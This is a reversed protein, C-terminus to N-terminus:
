SGSSAFGSARAWIWGSTFAVIKTPKAVYALTTRLMQEDRGKPVPDKPDSDKVENLYRLTAVKNADGYWNEIRANGNQDTAATVPRSAGSTTVVCNRAPAGDVDVVHIFISSNSRLKFEIADMTDLEEKRLQITFENRLDDMFPLKVDRGLSGTWSSICVSGKVPGAVGIFGDQDPVAFEFEGHQNTRCNYKAFVAEGKEALEVEDKLELSRWLVTVNEIPDGTELSTVIGRVTKGRLFKIKREVAEAEVISPIEFKVGLFQKTNSPEIWCHAGNSNPFLEISAKSDNVIETVGMFRNHQLFGPISPAITVNDIRIPNDNEDVAQLRLM